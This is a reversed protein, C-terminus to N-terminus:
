QFKKLRLYDFVYLVWIIGETNLQFVCCLLTVFKSAEIKTATKVILVFLSREDCSMLMILKQHKASNKSSEKKNALFADNSKTQQVQLQMYFIDCVDCVELNM